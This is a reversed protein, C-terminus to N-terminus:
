GVSILSYYVGVGAVISVVVGLCGLIFVKM